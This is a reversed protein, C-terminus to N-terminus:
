AGWVNMVPHGPACGRVRDYYEAALVRLQRDMDEIGMEDTAATEDVRMAAFTDRKKWYRIGEKFAEHQHELLLGAFDGFGLSFRIVKDASDLALNCRKRVAAAPQQHTESSEGCACVVLALGVTGAVLGKKM